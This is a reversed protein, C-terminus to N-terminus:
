SSAQYGLADASIDYGNQRTKFHSVRNPSLGRSGIGLQLGAGDNEWINLGPVKGYLQRANNTAVNASLSDITILESKKGAYIHAGEVAKLFSGSAQKGKVKVKGIRRVRPNASDMSFELFSSNSDCLFVHKIPRFGTKTIYILYSSGSIGKFRFSGEKSTKVRAGLPEVVVQAKAMPKNSLEDYVHGRITLEQAM